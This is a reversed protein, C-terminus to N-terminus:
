LFYLYRSGAAVSIGSSYKDSIFQHIAAIYAKTLLDVALFALTKRQQQTKKIYPRIAIIHHFVEAWTRPSVTHEYGPKGLFKEAPSSLPM